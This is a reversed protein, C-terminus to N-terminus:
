GANKSLNLPADSNGDDKKYDEQIQPVLSPWPPMVGLSSHCPGVVVGPYLSRAAMADGTRAVPLSSMRYHPLWLPPVPSPPSRYPQGMSSTLGAAYFPHALTPHHPLFSPPIGSPTFLGGGPFLPSPALFPSPLHSSPSASSSPSSSMPPIGPRAMGRSNPRPPSPPAAVPSSSHRPSHLPVHHHPIPHPYPASPPSSLRHRPSPVKGGGSGRAQVMMGPPSAESLPSSPHEQQSNGSGRTPSKLLSRLVPSPEEGKESSGKALLSTISYSSLRDSGKVPPPSPVDDVPKIRQTQCTSNSSANQPPKKCEVLASSRSKHRKSTAHDELSVREMERLIRKRPSVLSPDLKGGAIVASGDPKVIHNHTLTAVSTRSVGESLGGLKRWLMDVLAPLKARPGARKALCIADSVDQAKVDSPSHPRRRRKRVPHSHRLKKLQGSHKFPQMIFAMEKSIGQRPTGQKWSHDRQWPSSQVSSNDDSVSLSASSEQRPTSGPVSMTTSSASAPLPWDTKKHVPVWSMREGDKRHSLELIFKGDKYFKLRGGTATKCGETDNSTSLNPSRSGNANGPGFGKKRGTNVEPGGNKNMEETMKACSASTSSDQVRM